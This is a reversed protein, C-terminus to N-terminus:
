LWKDAAVGPRKQLNEAVIPSSVAGSAAQLRFNLIIKIMDGYENLHILATKGYSSRYGAHFDEGTICLSNRINTKVQKRAPM